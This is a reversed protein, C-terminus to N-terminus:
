ELLDAQTQCVVNVWPLGRWSGEVSSTIMSTMWTFCVVELFFM